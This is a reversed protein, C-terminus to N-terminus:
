PPAVPQKREGKKDYVRMVAGLGIWRDRDGTPGSKDPLYPMIRVPRASGRPDLLCTVRGWRFGTQGNRKWEILDGEELRHLPRLNGGDDYAPVDIYATM